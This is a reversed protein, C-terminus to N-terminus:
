NALAFNSNKLLRNALQPILEQCIQPFVQGTPGVFVQERIMKVREKQLGEEVM